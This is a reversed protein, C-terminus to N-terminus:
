STRTKPKTASAAKRAAAKAPDVPLGLAERLERGKKSRGKLSDTLEHHAKAIRRPQQQAIPGTGVFRTDFLDIAHGELTRLWAMNVTVSDCDVGSAASDVLARLQEYFAAETADWFATDIASFDGKPPPKGKENKFWAEKVAGRLMDAVMEAAALWREVEGAVKKQADADCAPLGYLPVTAEHWAVPKGKRLDYGFAWLLLQGPIDRYRAGICHEIVKARRQGGRGSSAAIGLWNRYAITSRQRVAQWGEEGRDRYPSHPHNWLSQRKYHLGGTTDRYAHVLPQGQRRCVDCIGTSAQDFDIRIRRPTAWLVHAPALEAPTLEKRKGAALGFDHLWPFVAALTSGPQEGPLHEFASQELVNLWLDHWLARQPNAIVLTTLPGGGRIGVFKGGGGGGGEPAILQMNFLAIAACHRCIANRRDRKVWLDKNLPLANESPSDLLLGEIRHSEGEVSALIADQMFRAGNGDFEFAGALPAFWQALTGADPPEDFLKRWGSHREVPTTTQLLGIAFQALAGNFDARDADFAVIDPRALQSPNVWERGGDRKRVPLWPETLLNM